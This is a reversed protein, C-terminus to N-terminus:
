KFIVDEVRPSYYNSGSLAQPFAFYIDVKAGEKDSGFKGSFTKMKFPTRIGDKEVYFTILTWTTGEKVEVDYLIVDSLKFIPEPNKQDCYPYLNNLLQDGIKDNVKEISLEADYYRIVKPYSNKKYYEECAKNFDDSFSGIKDEKVTVGAAASHGGYSIFSDSIIDLIEKLNIGEVSRGSGKIVGDYSGMVLCPRGYTEVLKSAVIGVVGINWEPNHVAIGHKFKEADAKAMEVADLEIRRQVFKRENNCEILADAMEEAVAYDSEVLVGLAMDPTKLRGAANIKPVVKFSIDEQSMNGYVKCQSILASVGQTTMRNLVQPNLGNKVIIRNDGIIPSIDGLTGIAAYTLFEIPDIKKTLCRIGRIFQYVEGCTCMECHDDSLHWTILADASNSVKSQDIIHHDIIIIKKVGFEKLELVEKENNSGCDLVFLLDPPAGVFEKFAKITKPNLGYGHKFRDPLFIKCNTDFVKCLSKIMASSTVGDCDYDGILAMEGGALVTECFIRAGVKVGHLKNPDSLNKYEPNLFAELHDPDIQRQSLLRAALKGKKLATKYFIEKTKDHQRQVWEQKTTKTESMIEKLKPKSLLVYRVDMGYKSQSEIIDTYHIKSIVDVTRSYKKRIAASFPKVYEDDVIQECLKDLDERNVMLFDYKLTFVLVDLKKHKLWGTKTVDGVQKEMKGVFEITFWEWDDEQILGHRGMSKKISKLDVSFEEDVGLLEALILDDVYYDIHYEMDEKRSAKRFKKIHYSLTKVFSSETKRSMKQQIGDTDSKHRFPDDHTKKSTRNTIVQEEATLTLNM